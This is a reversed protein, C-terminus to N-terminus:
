RAVCVVFHAVVAPLRDLWVFRGKPFDFFLRAVMFFMSDMKVSIAAGSPILYQRCIVPDFQHCMRPLPGHLQACSGGFMGTWGDWSSSYVNASAPSSNRDENFFNFSDQGVHFFTFNKSKGSALFWERGYRERMDLVLVVQVYKEFFSRGGPLSHPFRTQLRPLNMPCIRLVPSLSNVTYPQSPITPTKWFESKRRAPISRIVALLDSM